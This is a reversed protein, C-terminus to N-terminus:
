NTSIEPARSAQRAQSRRGGRRRAKPTPRRSSASKATSFASCTTSTRPVTRCLGVSGAVRRAVAHPGQHRHRIRAAPSEAGGQGSEPPLPTGAPRHGRQVDRGPLHRRRGRHRGSGEAHCADVAQGEGDRCVPGAPRLHGQRGPGLGSVAQELFQKKTRATMAPSDPLRASPGALRRWCRRPTTPDFLDVLPPTRAKSSSSNGPRRMFRSVALWFDDRVMVVCQVREGDCQRLAQVLETNQKRRRPM